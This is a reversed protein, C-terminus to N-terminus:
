GSIENLKNKVSVRGTGLCTRCRAAALSAFGSGGVIPLYGAGKCTPCRDELELALKLAKSYILQLTVFADVEGGKDPHIQKAMAKYADKVQQSTADDPLGLVQFCNSSLKSKSDM